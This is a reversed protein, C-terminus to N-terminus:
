DEYSTGAKLAKHLKDVETNCLSGTQPSPLAVGSRALATSDSVHDAVAGAAWAIIPCRIRRAYHFQRLGNSLSFEQGRPVWHCPFPSAAEAHWFTDKILIPRTQCSHCEGCACSGGTHLSAILQSSKVENQLTQRVKSRNPWSVACISSM